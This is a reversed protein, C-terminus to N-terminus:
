YNVKDLGKLGLIQRAEDPTAPEIGLERAIRIIKAVQEANSKAMKGRDLYLNDELGVRVNGGLLLSQTCIPFQARGAVCVSFEFSGILRKAYDVLFMLNESSPTIGGLVGMVFQIYVPKKVYGREIMFAINNIMGSDYAEFEPKTANEDFIVAFERMSKFTNPFIFDETMALYKPEWDFKFDKYKELAHFLAFNISGANFSALEPKFTSVPVLRQEATMGLGGGTTICIVMNCRSKINTIVEKILDVNPSPMGTEPDRVHIHAVAAGAEYAEVAQDAIQQPTIPLYESMSTTHISGTIAATVVAKEKM